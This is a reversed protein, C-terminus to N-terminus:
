LISFDVGKNSEQHSLIHDDEVGEVTCKGHIGKWDRKGPDLLTMEEAKREEEIIEGM